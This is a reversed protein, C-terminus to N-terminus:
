NAQRLYRGIVVATGKGPISEITLIDSCRRMIPLGRGREATPDPLRTGDVDDPRFGVGTDEVTAVIRDNLRRVHICIPQEAQAHEIANAVAEGLATLFLELDVDDVHYRAGFDTVAERVVRSLQPRPPVQLDLIAETTLM